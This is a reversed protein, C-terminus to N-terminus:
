LFANIVSFPRFAYFKLYRLNLSFADLAVAGPDPKFSVYLPFQNSLLSAFLDINPRLSLQSLANNLSARDLVWETNDNTRRSELDAKINHVGPIHAASLWINRDICCEWIEKGLRNCPDSHSTEMHNLVAIATTNDTLIRLHTNYHTKFFTQLGVFVALLELYNIHYSKKEDPWFGGTSTDNYVAGWGNQSADTTLTNSPQGRTIVNHSTVMNDVWWQVEKKCDKTLIM